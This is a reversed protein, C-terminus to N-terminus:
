DDFRFCSKSSVKPNRSEELNRLFPRLRRTSHCTSSLLSQHTNRLRCTSAPPLPGRSAVTAGEESSCLRWRPWGLREGLCLSLAGFVFVCLCLCVFICVCESFAGFFKSGGGVAMEM